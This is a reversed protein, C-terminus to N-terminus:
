VVVEGGINGNRCWARLKGIPDFRGASDLHEFAFEVDHARDVRQRQLVLGQLFSVGEQLSLEVVDPRGLSSDFTIAEIPSSITM